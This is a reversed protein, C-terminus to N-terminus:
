LSAKLHITTINLPSISSILDFLGKYPWCTNISSSVPFYIVDIIALYKEGVVAYNKPPLSNTVKLCLSNFDFDVNTIVM